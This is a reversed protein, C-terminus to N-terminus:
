VSGSSRITSYDRLTYGFFKLLQPKKVLVQSIVSIDTSSFKAIQSENLNRVEAVSYDKVKVKYNMDVINKYEDLNLLRLIDIPNKCFQEYTLFKCNEKRVIRKLMRARRQWAEGAKQLIHMKKVDDLDAFGYYRHVISSINAYPDRINVIIRTDVFLKSLQNYRLMNPPSKEFIYKLKPNKARQRHFAQLWVTRIRKYNVKTKRKWREDVMVKRVLWQGEYRRNFGEIADIQAVFDAIATSGSNPPTLLMLLVPEDAAEPLAAPSHSVVPKEAKSERM